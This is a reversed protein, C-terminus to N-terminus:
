WNFDDNTQPGGGIKYGTERKNTLLYQAPQGRRREDFLYGPGILVM